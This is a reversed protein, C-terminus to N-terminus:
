IFGYQLKILNTNPFLSNLMKIDFAVFSSSKDRNNNIPAFLIDDVIRCTSISSDLIIRKQNIFEFLVHLNIVAYKMYGTLSEFDTKYGNTIGYVMYQADIKFYESAKRSDYMNDDRRYRLTFDNYTNYKQDRFREQVTIISNEIDKLIYDIGHHVDLSDILEKPVDEEIWDLVTYILPVALAKHVHNTFERDTTYKSM